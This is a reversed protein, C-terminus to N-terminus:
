STSNQHLIEEIQHEVEQFCIFLAFEQAIFWGHVGLVNQAPSCENLKVAKKVKLVTKPNEGGGRVEITATGINIRRDSKDGLATSIIYSYARESDLGKVMRIMAHPFVGKSMLRKQIKNTGEFQTGPFYEEEWSLLGQEVMEQIAKEGYHLDLM